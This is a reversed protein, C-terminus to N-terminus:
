QCPRVCSHVAAPTCLMRLRHPLAISRHVVVTTALMQVPWCQRRHTTWWIRTRNPMVGIPTVAVRTLASM